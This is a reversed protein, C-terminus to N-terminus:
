AAAAPAALQQVLEPPGLQEDVARVAGQRQALQEGVGEAGVVQQHGVCQGVRDVDDAGLAVAARSDSSCIRQNM